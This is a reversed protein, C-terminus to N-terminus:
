LAAVGPKKVQDDREFAIDVWKAAEGDGRVTGYRKRADSRSQLKQENSSTSENENNNSNGTDMEPTKEAKTPLEAEGRYIIGTPKDSLVTQTDDPGDDDDDSDDTIDRRQQEQSKSEVHKRPKDSGDNELLREIEGEEIEVLGKVKKLLDANQPLKLKIIELDKANLEHPNIGVEKLVGIEYDTLGDQGPIGDITVVSTNEPESKM